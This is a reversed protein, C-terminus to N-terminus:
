LLYTILFLGVAGLMFGAYVEVPRHANSKLRSFATVAALIIAGALWYRTDLMWKFTVSLIVGLLAGSYVMYISIKWFYSIMATILLLISFSNFILALIMPASVKLLVFAGLLAFLSWVMLPIRREHRQSLSLDSIWGLRKLLFLGSLPLLLTALLTVLYVYNKAEVNLADMWSGSHFLIFIIYVPIAFPHSILNILRKLNM